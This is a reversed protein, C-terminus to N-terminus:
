DSTKRPEGEDREESPDKAAEGIAGIGACIVALGIGAIEGLIRDTKAFETILRGGFWLSLGAIVFMLWALGRLLAQVVSHTSTGM